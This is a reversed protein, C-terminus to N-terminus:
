ARAGNVLRVEHLQTPGGSVGRARLHELLAQYLEGDAVGVDSVRVWPQVAVKVGGDTVQVIGIVPSPDKLVRPNLMVVQRVGALLVSVDGPHAVSVSLDLQRTTGFNHLIEGVIKRNPIIVRSRDAHTLTTAALAIATVDGHVGAVAIHEGVRFPKTLIISLGAVMNGLVGQLAIGLGLGAVGIGAVLPAIQFGFKDLAVVLAFLLVVVRLARVLLQRMPPEMDQRLLQRETLSGVWRAVLLGVALIAFAGLVQFGYRVVLDLVLDHVPM